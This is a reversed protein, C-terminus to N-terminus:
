RFCDHIFVFCYYGGGDGASFFFFFLVEETAGDCVYSFVAHLYTWICKSWPNKEKLM